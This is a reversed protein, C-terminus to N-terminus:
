DTIFCIRLQLGAYLSLWQRRAMFWEDRAACTCVCKSSASYLSPARSGPLVCKWVSPTFVCFLMWTHRCMCVCVIVFKEWLQQRQCSWGLGLLSESIPNNSFQPLHLYTSHRLTAALVCSIKQQQETPPQCSAKFCPFGLARHWIRLVNVRVINSDFNVKTETFVSIKLASCIFTRLGSGTRAFVMRSCQRGSSTYSLSDFNM